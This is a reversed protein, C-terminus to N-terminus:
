SGIRIDFTARNNSLPSMDLTKDGEYVYINM